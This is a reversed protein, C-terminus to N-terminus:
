ELNTRVKHSFFLYPLLFVLCITARHFYEGEFDVAVTQLHLNIELLM